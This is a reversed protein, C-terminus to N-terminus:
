IAYQLNFAYNQKCSLLLFLEPILCIVVASRIIPNIAEQLEALLVVLLGGDFVEVILL